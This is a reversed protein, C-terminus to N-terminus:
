KGSQFSRVYNQRGYEKTEEVGLIAWGTIGVWYDTNPQGYSDFMDGPAIGFCQSIKKITRLTSHYKKEDMWSKDPIGIFKSFEKYGTENAIEFIPMIYDHGNKDRGSRVDVIRLKVEETTEWVELEQVNELDEILDSLDFM